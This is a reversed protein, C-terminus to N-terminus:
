RSPAIRRGRLEDVRIFKGSARGCDAGEQFLSHDVDTAEGDSDYFPGNDDADIDTQGRCAFPTRSLAQFADM